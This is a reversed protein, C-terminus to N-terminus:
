FGVPEDRARDRWIKCAREVKRRASGPMGMEGKWNRATPRASLLPSGDPGPNVETKVPASARPKEYREARKRRCYM